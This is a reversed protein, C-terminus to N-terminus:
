ERKLSFAMYHLGTEDSVLTGGAPALYKAIVAFPPLPHDHLAKDLDRFVPNRGAADSLRRRTNPSTALDYFSRMTEEPRSFVMMGPKDSGLYQKAKSAILKFDLEKDLSKSPDNKNAIAAELCKVSDSLLFYDGLVCLCPTPRRVLEEDLNQPQNRQKIQYYDAGSFSKKTFRDTFKGALKDVTKRMAAADKVKIGVLNTGSNVRAPKEFWSVHTARGDIQDLIEKEVDIGLPRSFRSEIDDHLANERNRITNYLKRFATLTKHSDWYINMYSAADAPVWDQPTQDGSDIAVMELIGARPNDLMLHMYSISDFDETAFIMSGGVAKIGDLGLAPLMALAMQAGMDDRAVNRFLEIPDVFWTVQPRENKTGVSRRMISTFKFNDALTKVTTDGDWVKLVAKLLTPDNCFVYVGERQCYSVRGELNVITTDGVRESRRTTGRAIMRDEAFEILKQAATDQDGVELLAIVAPRGEERGVLAVCVEGQPIALLEDLSVGISQQIQMFLQSASGYLQSVLPQIQKDQFLRGFATAQFRDVLERSDAIRIYALTKEPLLKPATPREAFTSASLTLVLMVVLAIPLALRGLKSSAVM